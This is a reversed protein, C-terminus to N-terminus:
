QRLNYQRICFQRFLHLLKSQRGHLNIFQFTRNIECGTVEIVQLKNAALEEIITHISLFACARAYQLYQKISETSGLQMEIQLDKRSLHHQKLAQEIVALTGSGAERIVLPIHKLQAVPLEVPYTKKNSTSTVLVIEDHVFPSYQLQPLTGSGEILGVDVKGELLLQEIKETNHNVLTLDISPYSKKFAALIKPLIYQAITTSSGIRLQGSQGQQMAHLEEELNRYLEFIQTAYRLLLEGAPTLSIANGHRNFLAAGTQNELESIHKSVAPQTIFLIKAAKSFSRNEAVAKFVQLRFDFIM